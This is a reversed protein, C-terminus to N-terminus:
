GSKWRTPERQELGAWKLWALWCARHATRAAELSKEIGKWVFDPPNQRTGSLAWTWHGAFPVHAQKILFGVLLEGSYVTFRRPNHIAIPHDRDSYPAPAAQDGVAAIEEPTLDYVPLGPKADAFEAVGARAIGCRFADAIKAKAEDVTDVTGGEFWDAFGGGWDLRHEESRRISPSITGAQYGGSLVVYGSDAFRKLRYDDPCHLRKERLYLPM